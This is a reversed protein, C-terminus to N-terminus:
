RTEIELQEELQAIKGELQTIANKSRSSLSGELEQLKAKLDKNQFIIYVCISFNVGFAFSSWEIRQFYNIFWNPFTNVKNCM